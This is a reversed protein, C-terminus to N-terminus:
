VQERKVPIHIMNGLEICRDIYVYNWHNIEQYCDRFVEVGSEKIKTIYNLEERGQYGYVNLLDGVTYKTQNHSESLNNQM